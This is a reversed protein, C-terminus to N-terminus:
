CFPFAREWWAPDTLSLDVIQVLNPTSSLYNALSQIHFSPLLCVIHVPQAESSDPFTATRFFLLYSRPWGMRVTPVTVLSPKESSSTEQSRFSPLLLLPYQLFRLSPKQPVKLLRLPGWHPPCPSHAGFSAM